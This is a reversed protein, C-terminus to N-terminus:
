VRLRRAPLQTVPVWRSPGARHVLWGALPASFPEPCSLSPWCRLESSLVKLEPPSFAPHGDPALPWRLSLGVSSVWGHSVAWALSCSQKGLASQGLLKCAGALGHAMARAFCHQYVSRPMGPGTLCCSIHQPQLSHGCLSLFKGSRWCARRVMSPSQGWCPLSRKAMMRDAM